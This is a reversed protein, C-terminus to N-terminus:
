SQKKKDVKRKVARAHTADQQKQVRQAKLSKDIDHATNIRSKKDRMKQGSEWKKDKRKQARSLGEEAQRVGPIPMLIPKYTEYEIGAKSKKRIIAYRIEHTAKVPKWGTLKVGFGRGKRNRGTKSMITRKDM